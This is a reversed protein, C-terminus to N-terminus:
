NKRLYFEERPPFYELMVETDDINKYFYKKCIELNVDETVHDIFCRHMSISTYFADRMMISVEFSNNKTENTRYLSISLITITIAMVSMVVYNFVNKM